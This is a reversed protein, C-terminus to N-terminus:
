FLSVRASQRKPAVVATTALVRRALRTKGRIRRGSVLRSGSGLCDDADIERDRTGHHSSGDKSSSGRPASADPEDVPTVADSWPVSTPGDSPDTDGSPTITPTTPSLARARWKQRARAADSSLLQQENAPPVAQVNPSRTRETTIDEDDVRVRAVDDGDGDDAASHRAPEVRSPNEVDMLFTVDADHRAPEVTETSTTSRATRHGRPLLTRGRREQPSAHSTTRSPFPDAYARVHHQSPHENEDRHNREHREERRRLFGDLVSWKTSSAAAADAAQASRRTYLHHGTGTFASDAEHRIRNWKDKVTTGCRSEDSSDELQEHDQQRDPDQDDHEANAQDQQRDEPWWQQHSYGPEDDVSAGEDTVWGESGDEERDGEEHNADPFDVAAPSTRQQAATEQNLPSPTRLKAHSELPSSFRIAAPQRGSHPSSPSAFSPRASSTTDGAGLLEDKDGGAPTTSSNRTAAPPPALADQLHEHAVTVNDWADGASRRRRWESLSTSPPSSPSSLRRTTPFSLEDASGGTSCDGDRRDAAAWSLETETADADSHDDHDSPMGDDGHSATDDVVRQRFAAIAATAPSSEASPTPSSHAATDAQFEQFSEAILRATWDRFETESSSGCDVSVSDSEQSLRSRAEVANDSDSETVWGEDDEEEDNGGSPPAESQAPAESRASSRTEELSFARGIAANNQRAKVSRQDLSSDQASVHELLSEAAQEETLAVLPEASDDLAVRLSQMKALLWSQQHQPLVAQLDRPLAALRELVTATREGRDSLAACLHQERSRLSSLEKRMIDKERRENVRARREDNLMTRVSEVEQEAQGARVQLEVIALGREKIVRDQTAARKESVASQLSAQRREEEITQQATKLRRELEEKQRAEKVMKKKLPREIERRHDTLAAQAEDLRIQAQELEAEREDLEASARELMWELKSIHSDAASHSAVGSSTAQALASDACKLEERLRGAEKELHVVDERRSESARRLSECERQLELARRDASSVAEAEGETQKKLRQELARARGEAERMQEAHKAKQANASRRMASILQQLDAVEEEEERREGLSASEVLGAEEEGHSRRKAAWRAAALRKQEPSSAKGM